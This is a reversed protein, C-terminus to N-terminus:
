ARDGHECNAHAGCIDCDGDEAQSLCGPRCPEGPEALCGECPLSEPDPYELMIAQAVSEAVEVDLGPFLDANEADHEHGNRDLWQLAEVYASLFSGLSCLAGIPDPDRVDIASTLDAGTWSRVPMWEAADTTSTITWRWVNRTGEGFGETRTDTHEVTVTWGDDTTVQAQAPKRQTSM